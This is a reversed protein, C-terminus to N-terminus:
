AVAGCWEASKDGEVNTGGWAGKACMCIRLRKGQRTVGEGGGGEGKERGCHRRGPFDGGAGDGVGVGDAAVGASSEPVLGHPPQL